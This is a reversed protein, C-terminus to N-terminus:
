QAPLLRVDSAQAPHKGYGHSEYFARIIEMDAEIDGSPTIMPGAGARKRNYDLFGLVIPLNAELAIHYFGSRWHDTKRRTGEPAIVLVIRPITNITAVAQQVANQSTTRNVPIGGFWKIFAGLIPWKVAKDKVITYPKRHYHAALGLMVMYDWNSTHPAAILVFKDLKPLEGEARWGALRWVLLVPVSAIYGLIDAILRAM